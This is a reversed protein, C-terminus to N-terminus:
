SVETGTSSRMVAMGLQELLGLEDINQWHEALKGDVVRYIAIWDVRVTNGTPPIDNYPGLHTGRGTARAVVKDGESIVEEVVVHWDPFSNRRRTRAAKFGETGVQKSSGRSHEIYDAAVLEDVVGLDHKNLVEEVLRLYLRKGEEGKTM